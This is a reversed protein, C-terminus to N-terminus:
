KLLKKAFRLIGIKYLLAKSKEIVIDMSKIPIFRNVTKWIGHENLYIYFEARREHPIPQRTIMVGDLEIAHKWDVPYVELIDYAERLASEGKSTNILVNTYGKDDDKRKMLESAHWCDYISIDAPRSEGKCICQYCSPRSSIEKFFCRLMLDVRASGTYTKGNEFSLAMTGSHYGYTKNRFNVNIIRSRHKEEQFAVYKKWLQPSPTGHCIVEILLLNEYEKKLYNRLGAVQCSTGSFLVYQGDSLLEKIRKFTEGLYSQVYKSGKFMTSNLPDASIECHKIVRNKDCVVGFAYGDRKICTNVLASFVGGSTSSNLIDNDKNRVVYGNIVANKEFGHQVPCVKECMGCGICKESDVVPYLFGEEDPKMSICKLPCISYCATCGCCKEKESIKIAM